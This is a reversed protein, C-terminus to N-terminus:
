THINKRYFAISYYCLRSTPLRQGPQIRRRTKTRRGVDFQPAHGFIYFCYKNYEADDLTAESEPLHMENTMLLPKYHYAM